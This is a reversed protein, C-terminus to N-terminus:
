HVTVTIITAVNFKANALDVLDTISDLSTAPTVIMNPNNKKYDSLKSNINALIQKRAEDKTSAVILTPMDITSTSTISTFTLQNSKTSIVPYQTPNM